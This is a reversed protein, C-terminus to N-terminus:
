KENGKMLIDETQKRLGMLIINDIIGKNKKIHLLDIADTLHALHLFLADGISSKVDRLFEQVDHNIIRLDYSDSCRRILPNYKCEKIDDELDDVADILYIWKGLHRGAEGLIRKEVSTAEPYSSMVDQMITAFHESMMDLTNLDRKEAANLDDIQKKIRTVLKYHNKLIRNYYKKLIRSAVKYRIKKEDNINDEIKFHALVIMMDAAYDIASNNLVVPRKIVPHVICRESNIVESEKNLSDLLLALFASDYSLIARPINGHRRAISKCVGCYYASYIDYERIKLDCKHIRVYGQM